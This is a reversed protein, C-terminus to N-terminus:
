FVSTRAKRGKPKAPLVKVETSVAALGARVLRRIAEARAPKDPHGDRWADIAALDEDSWRTGVLRGIEPRGRDRKPKGTDRITSQKM